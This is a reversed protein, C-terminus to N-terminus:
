RFRPAEIHSAGSPQSGPVGLRVQIGGIPLVAPTPSPTPTPAPRPGAWAPQTWALALLLGVTLFGHTM